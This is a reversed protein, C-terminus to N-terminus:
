KEANILAKYPLPRGAGDKMTGGITDLTELGNQNRRAAFENIYRPLHERSIKHFAGYHGRKLLTWFPEIGNTHAQGKVYEGVSHRVAKHGAICRRKMPIFNRPLLFM